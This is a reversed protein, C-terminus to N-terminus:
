AVNGAVATQSVYALNFFGRQRISSFNAAINVVTIHFGAKVDTKAKMFYDGKLNGLLSVPIEDGTDIAQDTFLLSPEEPFYLCNKNRTSPLVPVNNGTAL